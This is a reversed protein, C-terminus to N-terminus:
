WILVVGRRNVEVASAVALYIYQDDADKTAYLSSLQRYGAKPVGVSKWGVPTRGLEHPYAQETDVAPPTPEIALWRKDFNTAKTDSTPDGFSLNDELERMDTDVRIPDAVQVAGRGLEQLTLVKGYNAANSRRAM